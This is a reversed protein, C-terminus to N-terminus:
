GLRMAVMPGLGEAVGGTAGAAAFIGLSRSEDKRSRAPGHPEDKSVPEPVVVAAVDQNEPIPVPVFEPRGDIFGATTARASRRRSSDRKLSADIAGRQKLTSPRLKLQAFAVSKNPQLLAEGERGKTYVFLRLGAPLTLALKAAGEVRLDVLRNGRQDEFCVLGVTSPIDTIRAAMRLKDLQVIPIRGNEAPARAVISL